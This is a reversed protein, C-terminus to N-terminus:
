LPTRDGQLATPIRVWGVTGLNVKCRSSGVRLRKGSNVDIVEFTSWYPGCFYGSLALLYRSDPSWQALSTGVTREQRLSKADLLLTRQPRDAEVVALWRGDPSWAGAQFAGLLPEVTGADLHIIKTGLRDRALVREGDPSLSLDTWQDSRPGCNDNRALIRLKGADQRLEFLGCISSSGAHYRGSLIIRQGGSSVAIGAAGGLETSGPILSLDGNDLEFKFPGRRRFGFRPDPEIAFGYLARGDPDYTIQSLTASMPLDSEGGSLRFIRLARPYVDLMAPSYPYGAGVVRGSNRYCLSLVLLLAVTLMGVATSRWRM